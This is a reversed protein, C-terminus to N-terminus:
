TKITRNFEMEIDFVSPWDEKVYIIDETIIRDDAKIYFKKKTSVSKNISLNSYWNLERMYQYIRLVTDQIDQTFTFRLSSSMRQLQHDTSRMISLTISQNYINDDNSQKESYKSIGVSFGLDKIENCIDHLDQFIDDLNSNNEFIKYEKLYKM